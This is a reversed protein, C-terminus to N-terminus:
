PSPRRRAAWARTLRATAAAGGCDVGAADLVPGAAARDIAAALAAPTLDREAVVTLAGRAAWLRARMTQETEGDGAFPVVVARTGAAAVELLTNYGCQSVSLAAGRLLAAFDARTREVRVGAPARERLAELRCPALGEGALLLWPRRRHVTDARAALAAALLASGVAGGGASVVVAGAAAEEGERVSSAAGGDVVYGTYHTRDGIGAAGPVSAELRVLAPDAHVLLRDYYRDFWALAEATRSPSRRQLIDRVSAAIVPPRAASRAADLLPLLEFRMQRRGFPFLETVLIDPDLERYLALLADRRAGRFADDIPRGRDDRLDAFGDGACLPPLQRLAAAGPAIVDVAPGGSVLTTACGEAALAAAITAARRLHGIGLLHQVYIMARPASM